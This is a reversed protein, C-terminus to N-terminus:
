EYFNLKCHCILSLPCCKWCYILSLWVILLIQAFITDQYTLVHWLPLHLLHLWFEYILSCDVCRHVSFTSFYLCSDVFVNYIFGSTAFCSSWMFGHTFDPAGSPYATGAGSTGSTAYQYICFRHDTMFSSLVSLTYSLYFMNTTMQYVGYVSPARISSWIFPINV